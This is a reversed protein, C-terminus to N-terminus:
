KKVLKPAYIRELTGATTDGSPSEATFAYALFSDATEYVGNDRFTITLPNDTSNVGDLGSGAAWTLYGETTDWPCLYIYYSSYRGLYQFVISISGTKRVYSAQIDYLTSLGRITYTSNDENAIIQVPRSDTIEGQENEALVYDYTGELEAYTKYGAPYVGVLKASVGTDSCEFTVSEDNYIFHEVTVGNLTLPEYLKLGDSTYIFPITETVTSGSGNTYTIDFTNYNQEAFAIQIDNISLNYTGLFANNEILKVEDLYDSWKTDTSVPTMVITTNTKKGSLVVKDASASMITFEFDGELGEAPDSFFHMIENYSDFSLIPGASQKLSYLSVVKENSDNLEGSITVKGDESFSAFINYGGYTEASSPYYEILWGNEASTLIEKDASLAASIRNASSDDFIDEDDHLSCSALMFTAFLCITMFLNRKM